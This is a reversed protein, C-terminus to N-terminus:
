LFGRFSWIACRLIWAGNPRFDTCGKVLFRPPNCTGVMLNSGFSAGGNSWSREWWIKESRTLKEQLKKWIEHEWASLVM